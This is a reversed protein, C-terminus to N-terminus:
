EKDLIDYEEATMIDGIKTFEVEIIWADYPESNILEPNDELEENVAIVKGNVPSYLESVAKVSEVDCFTEGITLESDIDPLNIFVIDGLANQAYDSIGIKAKSGEIKIWEHTSSFKLNNPTKM